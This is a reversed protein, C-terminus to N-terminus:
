ARDLTIENLQVVPCNALWPTRVYLQAWEHAESVAKVNDVVGHTHGGRIIPVCALQLLDFPIRSEYEALIDLFEQTCQNAPKNSTHDNEVLCSEHYWRRCRLCLHM